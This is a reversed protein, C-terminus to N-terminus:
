KFLKNINAEIGLTPTGRSFEWGVKYTIGNNSKYGLQPMFLDEGMFAGVVIGKDEHQTITKSINAKYYLKRDRISNMYTEEELIIIAELDNKLTDRFSKITYYDIYVDTFEKSLGAESAKKIITDIIYVTDPIIEPQEIEIPVPKEQYITDYVVETVTNTSVIETSKKTARGVFFAIAIIIVFLIGEKVNM